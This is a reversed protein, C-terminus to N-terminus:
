FFPVTAAQITPVFRFGPSPEYLPRGSIAHPGQDNADSLPPNTAARGCAAPDETHSAVRFAADAAM